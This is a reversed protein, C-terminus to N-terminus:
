HMHTRGLLELEADQDSMGELDQCGSAGGEFVYGQAVFRNLVLIERVGQLSFEGRRVSPCLKDIILSSYADNNVRSDPMTVVLRSSDRDVSLARWSSAEGAAM